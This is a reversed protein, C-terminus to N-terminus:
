EWKDGEPHQVEGVLSRTAGKNRTLGRSWRFEVRGGSGHRVRAGFWEGEAEGSNEKEQESGAADGTQQRMGYGVVRKQSQFWSYEM